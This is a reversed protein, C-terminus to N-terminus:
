WIWPILRAVRQQYRRYDDPFAADLIAEEHKMKKLLVDAGGALLIAARVEGLAFLMGLLAALFGSYIPHRVVAYPGNQVLQQEEGRTVTANWNRALIRRGWIAFGVGLACMTAGAFQLSAINPLLRQGLIPVSSLPLCYLAHPMWGIAVASLSQKAPSVCKNTQGATTWYCDMVAWCALTFLWFWNFTARPEFAFHSVLLVAAILIWITLTRVV